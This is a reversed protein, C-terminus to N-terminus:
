QPVKPTAGGQDPEPSLNMIVGGDFRIVEGSKSVELRNAQLTGQQMKVEVPQDSVINGNKVDIVAQTLHIEYGSTSTLVIDRNLTLLNAKRDFIGLAAKMDIKSQDIMELVARPEQLNVVASTINQAASASLEYRRQDRTYGSLKPETMTMASGAAMLEGISTPLTSLMRLPNYWVMIITVVLGFTLAVPLAVRLVRVRRSHRAARRYLDGASRDMAAFGRPEKDNTSYAATLRNM